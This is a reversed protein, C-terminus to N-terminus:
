ALTLAIIRDTFEQSSHSVIMESYLTQGAEDWQRHQTKVDRYPRLRDYIFRLLEKWELQAVEPPLDDSKTAGIATLRLRYLHDKYMGTRRLGVAIETADLPAFPGLFFLIRQLNLRNPDLWSENLACRGQKAEVIFIEIRGSEPAFLKPDDAMPRGSLWLEKRHPFRVALLDVETGEHGRRDHILVNPLALCGNLRFYWYAVQETDLM